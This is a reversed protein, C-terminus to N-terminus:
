IVNIARILHTYLYLELTESDFAILNSLSLNKKPDTGMQSVTNNTHFVSGLNARYNHLIVWFNNWERGM